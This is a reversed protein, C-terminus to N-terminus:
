LFGGGRGFPQFPPFPGPPPFHDPNPPMFFPDPPDWRSGPPNQFIPHNPGVRNGVGFPSSYPNSNPMGFPGVGFPQRNVFPVEDRLVSREKKVKGAEEKRKEEKEKNKEENSSEIVKALVQEEYPLLVKCTLSQSLDDSLPDIKLDQLSISHQYVKDDQDSRVTHLTLKNSTIKLVKQYLTLTRFTYRFSYLHPNKNWGEPLLDSSIPDDEQLGTCELGKSINFLHISLILTEPFDKCTPKLSNFMDTFLSQWM